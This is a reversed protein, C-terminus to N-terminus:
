SKCIVACSKARCALVTVKALVTAKAHSTAKVPATEKVRSTERARVIVKLSVALKKHSGVAPVGVETFLSGLVKAQIVFLDIMAMVDGVVDVLFPLHSEVLVKPLDNEIFRPRESRFIELGVQEFLGLRVLIRDVQYPTEFGDVPQAHSHDAVFATFDGFIPNAAKIELFEDIEEDDRGEDVDAFRVEIDIAQGHIDGVHLRILHGIDFIAGKQTVYSRTETEM